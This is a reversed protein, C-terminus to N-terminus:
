TDILSKACNPQDILAIMPGTQYMSQELMARAYPQFDASVGACVISPHGCKLKHSFDAGGFKIAVIPKGHTCTDPATHQCTDPRLDIAYKLETHTVWRRPIEFIGPTILLLLAASERIGQQMAPEDVDRGDQGQWQSLWVSFGIEQLAVAIVMAQYKYDEHKVIYFHYKCGPPLPPAKAGM